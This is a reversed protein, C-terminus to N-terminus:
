AAAVARSATPLSSVRRLATYQIGAGGKRRAFPTAIVELAVVEGLGPADGQFDKALAVADVWRGMLIHVLHVDFPPRDEPEVHRVSTDAVTGCLIIM